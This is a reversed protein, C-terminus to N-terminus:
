EKLLYGIRAQIIQAPIVASTELEAARIAKPIGRSSFLADKEFIVFDGVTDGAAINRIESESAYVIVHEAGGPATTEWSVELKKSDRICM